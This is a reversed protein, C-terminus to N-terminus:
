AADFLAQSAFKGRLLADAICFLAAAQVIPVARPVVCPDHRGLVTLVHAQGDSALGQVAQPITAPAKFAADFVLPMGTTMGGLTGGHHNTATRLPDLGGLFADNHQSGPLQAAGFGSGFQIGRCAPLSLVAHGILAPLKDFSPEGLGPPLGTVVCRVVGGLSDRRLRAAEIAAIMAASATADPCRVPSCDVAADDLHLPDFIAAATAPAGILHPAPGAAQCDGVAQTWAVVGIRQRQGRDAWAHLIAQAVAGAAVRAVTERAGSRGGGRPDRHGFRAAWTADAHGPRFHDSLLDYDKPRADTNAIVIAIPTGLTMGQYVGSLIQAADAEKRQSQLHNQAPRRRDLWRQIHAADLAIGAPCGDIVCGVAPGHSEGFTTVVLATGFSNAAM